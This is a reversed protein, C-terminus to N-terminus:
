NDGRIGEEALRKDIAATLAAAKEPTLTATKEDPGTIEITTDSFEQLNHNEQMLKLDSAVKGSGMQRAKLGQKAFEAITILQAECIAFKAAKEQPPMGYAPLNDALANLHETLTEVVEELFEMPDEDTAKRLQGMAKGIYKKIQEPQFEGSATELYEMAKERSM